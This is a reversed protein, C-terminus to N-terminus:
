KSSSIKRHEAKDNISITRERYRNANKKFYYQGFGFPILVAIFDTKGKDLGNNPGRIVV